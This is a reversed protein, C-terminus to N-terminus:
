GTRGLLSNAATTMPTSVDGFPGTLITSARGRKQRQATRQQNEVM